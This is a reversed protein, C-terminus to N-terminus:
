IGFMKKMGSLGGSKGSMASFMKKMQRFKKLMRSLEEPGVGAGKAVRKKRSFDIIDPNRREDPTMSLIMAEMKGLEKESDSAMGQLQNGGPIMGMLEELPGMKRVERMQDLFMELDMEGGLMRHALNEMKKQDTNKAAREVLSVVDGMGLIRDVFRSPHFSEIADPREGTGIWKIPVGTVYRVSLAAGGRADGDTKSLYISSLTLKKHFAEAVKVAEQGTMSDLVLITEHADIAAAVNVIEDMLEDDVQLRGATDFIIHKHDGAVAMASKASAVADTPNSPAIFDLGSEEALVRLQEVAAPRKLDLAVLASDGFLKGLKAAASTKGAGQLGCLLIRTPPSSAQNLEPGSADAGAGGSLTNALEDHVIKVFQDAPIIAELVEAGNARVKVADLFDKVVKFHVDAELLAIRIERLAPKINEPSLKGYGALDRFVHNMRSTLNEFM